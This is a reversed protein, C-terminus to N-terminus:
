KLAHETKETQEAVVLDRFSKGILEEPRYGWMRFSSPSVRVFKGRTDVTCIVEIANEFVAREKKAAEQLAHAMEQFVYGLHGIEDTGKVPAVLEEGKAL